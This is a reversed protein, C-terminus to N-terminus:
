RRLKIAVITGAATVCADVLWRWRWVTWIFKESHHLAALAMTLYLMGSHSIMFLAGLCFALRLTTEGTSEGVFKFTQEIAMLVAIAALFHIAWWCAFLPRLLPPWRHQKLALLPPLPHMGEELSWKLWLLFACEAVAVLLFVPLLWRFAKDARAEGVMWGGFVIVIFGLAFAFFAGLTSEIVKWVSIHNGPRDIKIVFM